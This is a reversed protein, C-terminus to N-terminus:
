GALVEIKEKGSLGDEDMVEYSIKFISKNTSNPTQLGSSLSFVLLHLVM